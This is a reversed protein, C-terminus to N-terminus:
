SLAPPRTGGTTPTLRRLIARAVDQVEEDGVIKQLRSRLLSELNPASREDSQSFHRYPPNVNAKAEDGNDPQCQVYIRILMTLSCFVRSIVCVKQQESPRPACDCSSVLSEEKQSQHHARLRPVATDSLSRPIVDRVRLPPLYDHAGEPVAVARSLVEALAQELQRAQQEQRARAIQARLLRARERRLDEAYASIRAEERARLVANYEEEAAFYESLARRYRVEPDAVLYPYSFYPRYLSDGYVPSSYYIPRPASNLFSLM